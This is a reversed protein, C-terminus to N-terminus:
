ASIAEGSAAASSCLNDFTIDSLFRVQQEMMALLASYDVSESMSVALKQFDKILSQVVYSAYSNVHVAFNSACYSRKVAAEIKRDVSDPSFAEESVVSGQTSLGAVLNDIKVNAPYTTAFDEVPYKRLLFRPFSSKELDKYEHALVKKVASHLPLSELEAHQYQAFFDDEAASSVPPAFGLNDRLHQLVQM